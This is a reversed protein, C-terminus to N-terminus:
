TSFTSSILARLWRNGPDQHFRRHWFSNTHLLPLRIPPKIFGLGLAASMREALRRPVTAVLDSDAVILPASLLSPVQMAADSRIGARELGQRIQQYPSASETVLLHRAARFTDLNVPGDGFVHGQRHITVCDQQFLRQQFHSSSMDDYAGVALDIRGSELGSSLETGSARVVAIHVQPAADACHRVLAPMFHIDAVDTMAITFTRTSAAPDFHERPSLGTQLLALAAAVPEALQEALPTPQMGATTRVFLADDFSQRLRALANSVAPQSMGLAQAAASIQRARLIEHFVVLLNLDLDRLSKM